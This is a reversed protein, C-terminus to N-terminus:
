GIFLSSCLSAVNYFCLQIYVHVPLTVRAHSYTYLWHQLCTCVSSIGPFSRQSFTYNMEVFFLTALHMLLCAISGLLELIQEREWYKWVLFATFWIRWLSFRLQVRSSNSFVTLRRFSKNVLTFPTMLSPCIVSASWCSSLTPQIVNLPVQIM